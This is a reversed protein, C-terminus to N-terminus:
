MILDLELTKDHEETDLLPRHTADGQCLTTEKFM